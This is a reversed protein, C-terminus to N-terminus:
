RKKGALITKSETIMTAPSSSQKTQTASMCRRLSRFCLEGDKIKQCPNFGKSLDVDLRAPISGKAQNFITQFEKTM